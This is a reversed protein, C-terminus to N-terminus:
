VYRNNNVVDSIHSLVTVSNYVTAYLSYTVRPSKAITEPLSSDLQCYDQVQFADKSLTIPTEWSGNAYKYNIWRKGRPAMMAERPIILGRFSRSTVFRCGSRAVSSALMIEVSYQYSHSIGEIKYLALALATQRVM